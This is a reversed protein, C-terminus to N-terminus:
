PAKKLYFWVSGAVFVVVAWIGKELLKGRMDMWFRTRAAAQEIMQEHARRHGEPDGGPFARQLEDLRRKFDANADLNEAHERGLRQDLKAIATLVPDAEAAPFQSRANM